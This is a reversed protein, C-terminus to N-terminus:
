LSLNRLAQEGSRPRVSEENEALALAPGLFNWADEFFACPKADVSLRYPAGANVTPPGTPLRTGAHAALGCSPVRALEREDANRNPEEAELEGRHKVQRKMAQEALMMMADRRIMRMPVPRIALGMLCVIGGPTVLGRRLVALAAQRVSIEGRM